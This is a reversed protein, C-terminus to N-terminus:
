NKKETAIFSNIGNNGEPPSFLGQRGFLHQEVPFVVSLIPSLDPHLSRYESILNDFTESAVSTAIFLDVDQMVLFKLPTQKM